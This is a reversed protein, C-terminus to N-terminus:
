VVSKRDRRLSSQSAPGEPSVERGTHRVAPPNGPTPSAMNGALPTGEAYHGNGDMRIVVTSSSWPSAQTTGGLQPPEESSTSSGPVAFHAVQTASEPRTGATNSHLASPQRQQHDPLVPGNGTVESTSPLSSTSAATAPTVPGESSAGHGQNKRLRVRAGAGSPTGWQRTGLEASSGSLHSSVSGNHQQHISGSSSSKPAERRALAACAEDRPPYWGLDVHMGDLIILLYSYSRGPKNGCSLELPQPVKDLKGEAKELVQYLELCGEGLLADKILSNHNFVRFHLKSYPTM